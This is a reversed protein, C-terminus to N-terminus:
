SVTVTYHDGPFLPPTVAVVWDSDTFLRRLDAAIARAEGETAAHITM